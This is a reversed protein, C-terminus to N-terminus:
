SRWCFEPSHIELVLSIAVWNFVGRGLVPRKAGGWSRLPPVGRWHSILFGRTLTRKSAIGSLNTLGAHWHLTPSTPSPPTLLVLAVANNTIAATPAGPLTPLPMDQSMTANHCNKLIWLKNEPRLSLEAHLFYPLSYCKSHIMYCLIGGILSWKNKILRTHTSPVFFVFFCFVGDLCTDFWYIHYRDLSDM